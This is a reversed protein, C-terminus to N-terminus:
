RGAPGFAARLRLDDGVRRLDTIRLQVRDAMTSLGPLAFLGRASAGLLHPALYLVLEDALGAEVLAGALTPGSEVLVDNCEHEALRRLAARLDLGRAGAPLREIVAGAAALAADDAGSDAAFVLTRGPLALMRASAPLRLRSDLVVRLPQRGATDVGPARVTLSPDDALATGIGTLIASSAARLRQVDARAAPGTIWQSTGDALATRGDLSAALKLTVRPRGRTMRSVFGANLAGARTALLGSAVEIGAAALAALGRGAVAPNPDTMAAVVRAVRAAILTDVCPPTRGHHACPELTVYATAGAARPGAATLADIEAHPGGAVRHWGEGVIEGGAVIVCGVRPNPQTTYRGRAALRLARAMFEHDAATFVGAASM